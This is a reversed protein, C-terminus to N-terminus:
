AQKLYAKKIGVMIGLVRKRNALGSSNYWTPNLALSMLDLKHSQSNLLATADKVMSLELLLVEDLRVRWFWDPLKWHFALLTNRMNQIDDETHEIPCVWESIMIVIELPIKDFCPHLSQKENKAHDIAKQLTPVLPNQFIDCEYDLELLPQRPEGSNVNYDYIAELQNDRWYRRSARVFKAPKIGTLGPELVRGFLVWCSAHVIFGLLKGRYQPPRRNFRAAYFPTFEREDYPAKEKGGIRALAQDDPFHYPDSAEPRIINIGTLRYKTDSEKIM